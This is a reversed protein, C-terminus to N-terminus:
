NYFRRDEEDYIEGIEKIRNDIQKKIRHWHIYYQLTIAYAILNGIILIILQLIM